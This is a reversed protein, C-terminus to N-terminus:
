GLSLNSLFAAVVFMMCISLSPSISGCYELLKNIVLSKFIGDLLHLLITLFCYDFFPSRGFMANCCLRLRKQFNQQSNVSEIVKKSFYPKTKTVQLCKLSLIVDVLLSKGM